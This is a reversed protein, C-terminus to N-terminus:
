QYKDCKYNDYDVGYKVIEHGLSTLFYKHKPPLIMGTTNVTPLMFTMILGNSNLNSLPVSEGWTLNEAIIGKNVNRLTKYNEKLYLLDEYYLKDIIATLRFFSNEDLLGNCFARFLNSYIDRIKDDRISNVTDILLTVNRKYDLSDKTFNASFNISKEFNSEQSAFFSLIKERFRINQYIDYKGYLINSVAIPPLFVALLDKTTDLTVTSYSERM